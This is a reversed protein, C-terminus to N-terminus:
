FGQSELYDALEYMPEETTMLGATSRGPEDYLSVLESADIYSSMPMSVSKSKSLRSAQQPTRLKEGNGGLKYDLPKHGQINKKETDAGLALLVNVANLHGKIVAMHLPTNKSKISEINIDGGLDYLTQLTKVSGLMAAGRLIGSKNIRYVIGSDRIDGQEVKAGLEIMDVLFLLSKQANKPGISKITEALVANAGSRKMNINAGYKLLYNVQVLDQEQVAKLLWNDWKNLDSSGQQIFTYSRKYDMGFVSCGSLLFVLLAYTKNFKM